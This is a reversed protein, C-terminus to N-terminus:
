YKSYLFSGQVDVRCALRVRASTFGTNHYRISREFGPKMREVATPAVPVAKNSTEFGSMIGEGAVEVFEVDPYRFPFVLLVPQPM